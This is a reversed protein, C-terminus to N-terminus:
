RRGMQGSGEQFPSSSGLPFASRPAQPSVRSRQPPVLPALLLFGPTTVARHGGALSTPAGPAAPETGTRGRWLPLPPQPLQKTSSFFSRWWLAQLSM